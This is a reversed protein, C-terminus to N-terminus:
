DERVDRVIASVASTSIGFSAALQSLTYNGTNYRAILTARQSDNLTKTNRPMARSKVSASDAFRLIDKLMTKTIAGAQIAEWEKDTLEIPTRKAGVTERARKLALDKYKKLDKKDYKLDPNARLKAEIESNALAQAQRERPTNKLSTNLKAKLSNVENKYVKNATPSYPIDETTAAEKRAKNAMAKMHNAYDAYLVEKPNPNHPDSYLERADRAEAMKTSKQSKMKTRYTLEGTSNTFTVEGTDPDVKEVPKYYAYKEKDNKDYYVKKGNDLVYGRLDSGPKSTAYEPYYLDDALKYILSGEPLDPDYWDKGKINVKPSGQTRAVTAQSKARSIITSAAGYGVVEGTNPDIRKQYKRRLADINNDKFSQQYDLKHKEADIVVMSHRVARAKEDDTAGLLTMDTILNSIKGMETQTNSMVKIPEGYKNIYNDGDKYTGYQMKADFGKLGPLEDTSKINVKSNTPIVMVTDGDFDAGSLRDAVEKNICVADITDTGILKRATANKNNVTCIPIEFTGGHPYRILAVKEGDEYGPAYVEDNKLDNVPIIVHYKQRPLAAAKLHVAASDCETAFDELLKKKVTPNTLSCIEDYESQKIDKAENLQRTILDMNQKSLFQSPLNNAWDEWDGESSKKNILGLQEKGNKDKYYYQGGLEPDKINSGFPNAEPEGTEKDVKIPKLVDRMPKDKSKNTNFVVDVGDPLDDSYVAMGKLYRDNDVLIRVQAYRDNGLSLDEVGRRIEILGDREVGGEEAYRIKLRSSDMSKPYAFKKHFTEGDNNTTYDHLSHIEKPDVKLFDKLETGPVCLTQITTNQGKMTAQEIHRKHVVYGEMQMRYVAEDFKERSINLEREADKGIDIYKKDKFQEKLFQYTGEAEELKAKQHPELKSRVSSDNKYGMMEAIKQYSYGKDRLSQMKDIELKKREQKALSLEKKFNTTTLGFHKAIQSESLDSKKLQDCRSIFDDCHQYPEEGSGWPYRGSHRKTGYHMLYDLSPKNDSITSM